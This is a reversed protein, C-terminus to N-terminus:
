TGNMAGYVAGEFDNNYEEFIAIIDDNTSQKYQPFMEKFKIIKSKLDSSLSPQEINANKQSTNKVNKVKKNAPM